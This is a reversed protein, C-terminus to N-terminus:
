FESVKDYNSSDKYMSYSQKNQAMQADFSTDITFWKGDLYVENWAHYGKVKDGYGKVLKTPIDVSRLMSAFLSSFDYCTGKKTKAMEEIDPLYDYTLGTKEFDYSYNIIIYDYVIKVKEDDSKINETLENAKQVVYSKDNWNIIQISWLYVDLPSINAVEVTEKIVQKYRNGGINELVAITYSGEGMQLPFVETAEQGTLNYYLTAGDKQVMLKVKNDKNISYNVSFVGNRIQKTDITYIGEANAPIPITISLVFLIMITIIFGKIIRM